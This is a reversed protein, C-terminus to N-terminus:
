APARAAREYVDLPAPRGTWCEFALAAQHVLMGLGNEARAGAAQASRMFGTVPPNYVLEVAVSERSYWGAHVVPAGGYHGLSTANVVVAYSRPSPQACEDLPGHWLRAPVHPQLAEVLDIARSLTRNLV